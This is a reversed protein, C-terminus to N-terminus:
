RLRHRIVDMVLCSSLKAPLRMSLVRRVWGGLAQGVFFAAVMIALYGPSWPVGLLVRLGVVLPVASHIALFWPLTLRRTNARWYGFPVNILISLTLAVVTNTM